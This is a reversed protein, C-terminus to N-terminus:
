PPYVRVRRTGTKAEDPSSPRLLGGLTRAEMEAGRLATNRVAIAEDAVADTRHRGAFVGLGLAAALDLAVVAFAAGVTGLPGALAAWATLHLWVLLLLAFVAAAAGLGARVAVSRVQRRRRLLEARSAVEVLRVVRPKGFLAV